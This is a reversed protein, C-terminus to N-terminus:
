GPLNEAAFIVVAFFVVHPGCFGPALGFHESFLHLSFWCASFCTVCRHDRAFQRHANWPGTIGTGPGLPRTFCSVPAPCCQTPPSAM